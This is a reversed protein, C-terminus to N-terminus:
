GQHRGGDFDDDSLVATKALDLYYNIVAVDSFSGGFLMEGDKDMGVVVCKIMGWTKATELLDTPSIGVTTLGTFPLINDDDSM